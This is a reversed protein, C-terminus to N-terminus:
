EGLNLELRRMLCQRLALRGRRIDTRVTNLPRGLKAAIDEYSAGGYLLLCLAQRQDDNTLAALCADVALLMEQRELDRSPDDDAALDPVDGDLGDESVERAELRRRSRLSDLLLFPARVRFWAWLSGPGRYCFRSDVIDEILHLLCDHTWDRRLDIDVTLRCARAYVADHARVFFESRAWEAGAQLGKVLDAEDRRAADRSM